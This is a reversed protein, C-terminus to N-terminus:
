NSRRSATLMGVLAMLAAGTAAAILISKMPQDQIYSETRESARQARDGLDRTTDRLADMGRKVLASVEAATGVSLLPAAGQRLDALAAALGDLADKTLRQASKVAEDASREVARSADSGFGHSGTGNTLRGSTDTDSTAATKPQHSMDADTIITHPIPIASFPNGGPRIPGM